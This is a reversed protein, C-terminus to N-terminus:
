WKLYEPEPLNDKGIIQYSNVVGWWRPLWLIKTQLIPALEYGSKIAGDRVDLFSNIPSVLSVKEFVRRCYFYKDTLGRVKKDCDDYSQSTWIITSEFKRHQSFFFKLDDSFSKFNRSDCYMMIEDICFLCKRFNYKGLADFDLRDCGDLPFNTVVHEYRGDHVLNSGIRFPRHNLANYAANTLLMSKGSGPLGFVGSIM